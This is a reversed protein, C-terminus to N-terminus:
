RQQAQPYVYPTKCQERNASAFTALRDLSRDGNKDLFPFAVEDGRVTYHVPHAIEARRSSLGGNGTAPAGFLNMGDFQLWLGRCGDKPFSHTRAGGANGSRDKAPVAREEDERVQGDGLVRRELFKLVLHQGM